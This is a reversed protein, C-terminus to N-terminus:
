QGINLRVTQGTKDRSTKKQIQPFRNIRTDVPKIRLNAAMPMPSTIAAEPIGESRQRKNAPTLTRAAEMDVAVGIGMTLWTSHVAEAVVAVEMVVGALRTCPGAEMDVVVKTAAVAARIDAGETGAAMGM